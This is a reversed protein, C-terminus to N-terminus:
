IERMWFCCLFAEGGVQDLAPFAWLCLYFAGKLSTRGEQLCFGSYVPGFVPYFRKYLWDLVCVPAM